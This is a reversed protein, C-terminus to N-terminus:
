KHSKKSTKKSKPTLKLFPNDKWILDPLADCYLEKLQETATYKWPNNEKDWKHFLDQLKSRKPTPKIM